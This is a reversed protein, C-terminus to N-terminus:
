RRNMRRSTRAMKNRKRNKQRRRAFSETEWRAADMVTGHAPRRPLHDSM